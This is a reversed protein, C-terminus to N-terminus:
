KGVTLSLRRSCCGEVITEEHKVGRKDRKDDNHRMIRCAAATLNLAETELKIV